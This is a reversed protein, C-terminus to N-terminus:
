LYLHKDYINKCSPRYMALFSSSLTQTNAVTIRDQHRPTQRDTVDRYRDFGLHSLSKPNEGYSLKTDRANWSLIEHQKTCPIEVFSPLFHPVKKNSVIKSSNAQRVHFRNCIPVSKSSIIIFVPFLSKLFTLTLSRSHGQVGLYPTKTIKAIIPQLVCKLLWRCRFQQLNVM